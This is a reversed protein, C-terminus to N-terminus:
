GFRNSCYAFNSGSPRNPLRPAFRIRSYVYIENACEFIKPRDLTIRVRKRRVPSSACNPVCTAAYATATARAVAGGYSQWRINTFRLSGDGTPTWRLPRFVLHSADGDGAVYVAHGRYGNAAQTASLSVCVMSVVVFASWRRRPRQLTLM